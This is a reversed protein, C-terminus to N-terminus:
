STFGLILQAAEVPVDLQPCHGIGDLLVWDAHPLENRYRAATQPWSLLKDATGWVIRVPCTINEADLTWGDSPANEILPAAAKCSAIGLMQHAILDAPIHEFNTTILQTARRRGQTTAVFAETSAAAAKAQIHLEWRARLLNEYSVDGPAWGGAPAFAVVTTARGRAALQFAVYGGLSNGVLHALELGAADMSREVADVLADMGVTREISPGGAHGPLTLALVDRQRELMPLVLEWTRWTDMFGHLCLLPSGTGGRRSPTFGPFMRLVCRWVLSGREGADGRSSEHAAHGPGIGGSAQQGSVVLM